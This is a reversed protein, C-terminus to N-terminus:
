PQRSNKILETMKFNISGLKQDLLVIVDSKIGLLESLKM